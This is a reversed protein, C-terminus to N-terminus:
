EGPTPARAPASAAWALLAVDIYMLALRALSALEWRRGRARWEDPALLAAPDGILALLEPLFWAATVALVVAYVLVAAGVIRRRAHGRLMLAAAVSLLFAPAHVVRWWRGPDIPHPGHFMAISDPPAATWVPVIVVHEYTGAACVGAVALMALWLVVERQQRLGSFTSSM